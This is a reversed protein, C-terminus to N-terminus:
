DNVEVPKGDQLKYFTDPKIKDGDVKFAQVDVLLRRINHETLVLWCGLAGKAKSNRETVIAISRRGSVIAASGNSMNIAVSHNGTNIAVSKFGMNTAVSCDGTSIAASFDGTNTAASSDDKNAAVSYDSTNTVASSYSRDSVASFKGTNITASQTGINTAIYILEQLSLEKVITLKDACAKYADPKSFIVNDGTEVLAFRSGNVPPYFEFVALPNTCFHFGSECLKLKGDHKYTKGVEFQFDRCCFNENFGKYGIM